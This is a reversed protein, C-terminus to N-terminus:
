TALITICVRWLIVNYTCQRRQELKLQKRQEYIIGWNCVVSIQIDLYFRAGCLGLVRLREGKIIRYERNITVFVIQRIFSSRLYM